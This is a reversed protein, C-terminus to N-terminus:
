EDLWLTLETLHIFTYSSKYKEFRKEEYRLKM